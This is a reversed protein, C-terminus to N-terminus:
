TNEKPYYADSPIYCQGSKYNEPNNRASSIMANKEEASLEVVKCEYTSHLCEWEMMELERKALEKRRRARIPNVHALLRRKM